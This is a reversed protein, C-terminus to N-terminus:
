KDNNIKTDRGSQISISGSNTKQIQSRKSRYARLGLVGFFIAVALGIAWLILSNTDM